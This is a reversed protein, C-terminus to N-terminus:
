KDRGLLHPLWSGGEERWWVWWGRGVGEGKNTDLSALPWAMVDPLLVRPPLPTGGLAGKLVQGGRTGVLVLAEGQQPGQQAAGGGPGSGGSSSSGAGPPLLTLCTADLHPWDAPPPRLHLPAAALRGLPLLERSSILRVCSGASCCLHILPLHCLLSLGWPLGWACHCM